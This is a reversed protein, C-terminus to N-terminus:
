ALALTSPQRVSSTCLDYSGYTSIQLKKRWYALLYLKPLIWASLFALELGSIKPLLNMFHVKAFVVARHASIIRIHNAYWIGLKSLVGFM